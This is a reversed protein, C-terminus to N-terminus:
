RITGEAAAPGGATVSAVVIVGDHCQIVLGVGAKEPPM